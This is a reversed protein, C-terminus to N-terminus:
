WGTLKATTSLIRASALYFRFLNHSVDHSSAFSDFIDNSRNSPFGKADFAYIGRPQPLRLRTFLPKKGRESNIQRGVFQWFLPFQKSYKRETVKQPHALRKKIIPNQLLFTSTSNGFGIGIASNGNNEDIM